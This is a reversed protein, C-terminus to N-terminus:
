KILLFIIQKILLAIWGTAILGVLWSMSKRTGVPGGLQRGPFEDRLKQYEPIDKSNNNSGVDLYEILRERHMGLMSEIDRMRYLNIHILRLWGSVLNHWIFLLFLGFISLLVYVAYDLWTQAQSQILVSFGVISLGIFIGSAQWMDSDCQSMDAMCTQYEVLLVDKSPQMKKM